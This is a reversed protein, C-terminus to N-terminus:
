GQGAQEGSAIGRASCKKRIVGPDARFALGHQNVASTARSRLQRDCQPCARMVIRDCHQVVVGFLVAQHHGAQAYVRWRLQAAEDGLVVDPLQQDRHWRGRPGPDARNDLHGFGVMQADAEDGAHLFQDFGGIAHAQAVDLHFIQKAAVGHRRDLM